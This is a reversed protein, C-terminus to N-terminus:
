LPGQELRRPWANSAKMWYTRGWSQFPFKLHSDIRRSCENCSSRATNAPRRGIFQRLKADMDQDYAAIYLAALLRSRFDACCSVVRIKNRRVKSVRRARAFQGSSRDFESWTSIRILLAPAKGNPGVCSVVSSSNSLTYESLTLAGYKRTASSAGSIAFLPLPAMTFTDVM